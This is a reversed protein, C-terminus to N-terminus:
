RALHHRPLVSSLQSSATLIPLLVLPVPMFHQINTGIIIGSEVTDM